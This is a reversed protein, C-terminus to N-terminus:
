RAHNHDGTAEKIRDASFGAMRAEREAPTWGARFGACAIRIEQPTPLYINPEVREPLGMVKAAALVREVTFTRISCSETDKFSATAIDMEEPIEDLTYEGMWLRWLARKQNPTLKM